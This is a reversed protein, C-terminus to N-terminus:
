LCPTSHSNIRICLPSKKHSEDTKIDAVAADQVVASSLSTKYQKQQQWVMIQPLKIMVTALNKKFRTQLIPPVQSGKLYSAVQHIHKVHYQKTYVLWGSCIAYSIWSYINRWTSEWFLQSSGRRDEDYRDIIMACCSWSSLNEHLKMKPIASFNTLINQNQNFNCLLLM